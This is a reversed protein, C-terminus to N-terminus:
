SPRVFVPDGDPDPHRHSALATIIRDESARIERLMREEMARMEQRLQANNEQMEQRLQANNEQMEQRLQANGEQMEQRLTQTESRLTQVESRLEERTPHQGIRRVQAVHGTIIAILIIVGIGILAIMENSLTIEDM